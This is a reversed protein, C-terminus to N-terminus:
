KSDHDDQSEELRGSACGDGCGDNPQRLASGSNDYDELPQLDSSVLGNLANRICILKRRTGLPKVMQCIDDDTLLM